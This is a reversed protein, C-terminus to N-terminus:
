LFRNMKMYYIFIYSDRFIRANWPGQVIGLKKELRENLFSEPSAGSV